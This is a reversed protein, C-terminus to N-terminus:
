IQFKHSAQTDKFEKNITITCVSFSANFNLLYRKWFIILGITFNALAAVLELSTFYTAYLFVSVGMDELLRADAVSLRGQADMLGSSLEQAQAHRPASSLLMLFLSALACAIWFGRAATQIVRTRSM